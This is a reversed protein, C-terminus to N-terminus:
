TPNRLLLAMDASLAEGRPWLSRKSGSSWRWDEPRSCRNAAVPNNEIYAIIRYFEAEDRPWHDYSEDQWFEEERRCLLGNVQYSTYGKLDQSHCIVSVSWRQERRLGERSDGALKGAV